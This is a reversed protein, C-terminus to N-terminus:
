TKRGYKSTAAVTELFHVATNGTYLLLEIPNHILLYYVDSKLQSFISCFEIDEFEM